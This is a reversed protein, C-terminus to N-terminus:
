EVIVTGKMSPHISCKYAYTGPETFTYSFTKGNQLTGSDFGDGTVTHPVSDYNEWTVTTGVSVTITASDFAYNEIKVDVDEPTASETTQEETTAQEESSAANSQEEVVVETTSESPASPNPEGVAITQQSSATGETGTETTTTEQATQGCAALFFLGIIFVVFLAITKKNM